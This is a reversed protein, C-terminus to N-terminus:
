LSVRTQAGAAPAGPGSGPAKGQRRRAGAPSPCTTSRGPGPSSTWAELPGPESSTCAWAQCHSSLIPGLSIRPKRRAMPRRPGSAAPLTRPKRAPSTPVRLILLQLAAGTRVLRGGARVEKWEGARESGLLSYGGEFGPLSSPRRPALSAGWVTAAAWGFALEWEPRCRGSVWFRPRPCSSLGSEWARARCWARPTQPLRHRSGRPRRM